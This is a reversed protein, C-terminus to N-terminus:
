LSVGNKRRWEEFAVDLKRAKNIRSAARCLHVGSRASWHSGEEECEDDGTGGEGLVM